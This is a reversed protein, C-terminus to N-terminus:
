AFLKRRLAAAAGLAGTGFLLLSSPEPVPSTSTAASLTIASDTTVDAQGAQGGTGQVYLVKLNAGNLNFNIKSPDIVTLQWNFTYIDGAGKVDLGLGTSESCFAGNGNGACGSSNLGGSLTTGFGTPIPSFLHVDSINSTQSTLKLSVANLKDTAAGTFGTADVTLYIDFVNPNGTTAYSLTYTSGNNSITDAKAVSGVLTVLSLAFLLKKFM